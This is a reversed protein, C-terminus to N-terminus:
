RRHHSRHSHHSTTLPLLVKAVTSMVGQPRKLVDAISGSIEFTGSEVMAKVLHKQFFGDLNSVFIKM